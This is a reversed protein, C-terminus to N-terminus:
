KSTCEDTEMAHPLTIKLRSEKKKKEEYIGGGGKLPYEDRKAKTLSIDENQVQLQIGSLVTYQKLM